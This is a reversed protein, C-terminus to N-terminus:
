TINQIRYKNLEIVLTNKLLPFKKYLNDANKAHNTFLVPVELENLIRIALEDKDFVVEDRIFYDESIMDAIIKLVM